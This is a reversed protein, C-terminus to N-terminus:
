SKGVQVTPSKLSGSISVPVRTQNVSGHMKLEMKGNIKFDKNVEVYGSSQMLGSNLVLGSFQYASPAM